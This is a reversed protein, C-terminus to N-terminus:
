AAPCPFRSFFVVLVAASFALGPDVSFIQEVPKRVM